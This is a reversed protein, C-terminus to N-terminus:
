SRFSLMRKMLMKTVVLQVVFCNRPMPAYPLLAWAIFLRKIPKKGRMKAADQAWPLAYLAIKNTSDRREVQM